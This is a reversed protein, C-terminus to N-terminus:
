VIDAKNHELAIKIQDTKEENYATKKKSDKM